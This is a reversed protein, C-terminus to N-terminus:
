KILMKHLNITILYRDDEQIAEKVWDLTVFCGLWDKSENWNFLDEM